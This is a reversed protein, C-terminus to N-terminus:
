ERKKKKKRNHHHDGPSPSVRDRKKKKKKNERDQSRDRSHLRRSTSHHSESSMSRREDLRHRHLFHWSRRSEEENEEQRWQRGLEESHVSIVDRIVETYSKKTIHVNKARYSQRRRKYDRMEAMLELHTKPENQEDDKQLKSVLDVYLDDNSSSSAEKQQKLVGIVHDYLALRDAVTLDCVARKHNQPVDVSQGSYQGQWFVGEMKMM